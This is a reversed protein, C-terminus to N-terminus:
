AHSHAMVDQRKSDYHKMIIECAQQVVQELTQTVDVVYFDRVVERLGLYEQRRIELLEPTAEHKREFLVEAPADLCIIMDPRPYLNRLMAGHVRNIFPVDKGGKVDHAYYDAYVHRDFLVVYGRRLYYWVYLQRYWEEAMLNSMRATLKLSRWAQKVPNGSRKASLRPDSPGAMDPRKGRLRKLELLLRTTPLVLKSSELNVGMYIYKTPIPLQNLLQHTVTSKGAGDPGIVAVTFMSFEELHNCWM